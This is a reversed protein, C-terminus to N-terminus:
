VTLILMINELILQDPLTLIGNIYTVAGSKNDNGLMMKNVHESGNTACHIM